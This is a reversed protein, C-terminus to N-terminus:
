ARLARQFIRIISIIQGTPSPPQAIETSPPTRQIEEHPINTPEQPFSTPQTQQAGCQEPHQECYVRRCEEESSCPM